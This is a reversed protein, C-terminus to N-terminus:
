AVPAGLKRQSYRNTLSKENDAGHTAKKLSLEGAAPM